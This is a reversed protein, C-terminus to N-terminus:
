RLQWGKKQLFAKCSPCFGTEDDTPNGGEADRMYCTPQPCHDLGQAHGLEHLAVKYFQEPVKKKDLRFTSVVCAQGPRYALGMIGWDEIGNKTTSIDKDTLTIWVTDHGARNQFIRIISDARYRNRSPYYAQEPLPINERLLTNPNILRIQECVKNALSGPFAGLPQVIITKPQAPKTSCSALMFLVLIFLMYNKM